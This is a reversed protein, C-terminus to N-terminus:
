KIPAKILRVGEGKTGEIDASTLWQYEGGTYAEYDHTKSCQGLIEKVGKRILDRDLCHARGGSSYTHITCTGVTVYDYETQFQLTCVEPKGPPVKKLAEECDKKLPFGFASVDACTLTGYTPPPITPVAAGAVGAIDLNTLLQLWWICKTHFDPLLDIAISGRCSSVKACSFSDV